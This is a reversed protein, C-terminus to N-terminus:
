GNTERVNLRVLASLAQARTPLGARAGLATCALGGLLNGRKLVERDDAHELLGWICGATFADGAGTTDVVDVEFAPM